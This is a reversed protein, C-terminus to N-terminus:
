VDELTSASMETRGSFLVYAMNAFNTIRFVQNNSFFNQRYEKSEHNFLSSAPTLLGILGNVKLLDMVRWTFAEAIRNGIVPRNQSNENLWNIVLVEEQKKQQKKNDKEIEKWPPNGIIWDFSQKLQWFNSWDNFFDCVFINQNHLSPFTFDKNKHLEPPEIYNLMMLVLSFEAVYCAEQNREVGYISNVLINKLESPKLKGDVSNEIAKEILGRYVLVLFIGSGCCPDLIKM